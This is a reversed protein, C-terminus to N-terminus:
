TVGLQPLKSRYRRSLTLRTGNQLTLAYEGSSLPALENVQDINVIISRSIRVFLEPSLRREIDRMTKRCVHSQKDTYIEVRNHGAEIWTIDATRLITIRGGSKVAIRAAPAPLQSPSEEKPLPLLPV